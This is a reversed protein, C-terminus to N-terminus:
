STNKLANGLQTLSIGVNLVNVQEHAHCVLLRTSVAVVPGQDAAGEEADDAVVKGPSSEAISEEVIKWVLWM